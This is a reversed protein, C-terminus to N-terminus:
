TTLPSEVGAICYSRKLRKALYMAADAQAMLQEESRGNTPYIACGINVGVRGTMSGIKFRANIRQAIKEVRQKLLTVDKVDDLLMVFEDGGIRAVTDNKRVMSKMRLAAVRLVEDGAKHGYTDNFSKFNELDVFLLAFGNGGAALAAQLRRSLLLRNGLGTLADTQAQAEATGLHRHIAAADRVVAMSCREGGIDVNCLSITVPIDKGAKNVAFVMSRDGLLTPQGDRQYRAVNEDHRPRVHAPVLVKIPAGVLETSDYGLLSKVATNAFVIRAEKDVVLVADHLADLFSGLALVTNRM